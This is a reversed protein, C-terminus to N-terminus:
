WRARGRAPVSILAGGRAGARWRGLLRHHRQGGRHRGGVAPARGRHAGARRQQHAARPQADLLRPARELELRRPRPRTRRLHRARARLGALADAPHADHRQQHRCRQRQLRVGVDPQVGAPLQLRHAGESDASGRARGYADRGDFVYHHTLLTGPSYFAQTRKGAISVQVVVGTLSAPISAGTLPIELSMGARYGPTASTDYFLAYPTGTVPVVEGLTQGECGIISGCEDTVSMSSLGPPLTPAKADPPPALGWNLDWSSFHPTM